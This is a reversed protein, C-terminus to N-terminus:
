PRARLWTWRLWEFCWGTAAPLVLRASVGAVSGPDETYTQVDKLWDM